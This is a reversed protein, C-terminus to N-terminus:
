LPRQPSSCILRKFSARRGFNLLLGLPVGSAKLYNLLQAEHAATLHDGAKCEVIVRRAVVIDARYKGVRHGLYTVTFPVETAVAVRRSRLDDVLSRRYVSELFGHGHRAHVRFFAALIDHTLDGHLLKTARATVNV